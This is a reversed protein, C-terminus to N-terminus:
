RKDLGRRGGEERGGRYPFVAFGSVACDPCLPIQFRYLSGRHELGKGMDVRFGGPVACGTCCQFLEVQLCRLGPGACINVQWWVKLGEGIM